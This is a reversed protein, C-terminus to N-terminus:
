VEELVAEVCKGLNEEIQFDWFRLVKWGKKRLQNNVEKDKEINRQIKRIWFDVNSKFAHRKTRMKKYGHWFASDCFIAMRYKPLVFDPTGVLKKYHKRYRLGAAWLARGFSKEISTDKSKIRSMKYSIIQKKSRELLTV